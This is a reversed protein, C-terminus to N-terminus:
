NITHMSAHGLLRHELWVDDNVVKFCALNKSNVHDLNIAYINGVRSGSLTISGVELGSADCEAFTAKTGSNPFTLYTSNLIM